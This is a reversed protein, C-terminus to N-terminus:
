SAGLCIVLVFHIMMPIEGRVFNFGKFFEFTEELDLRHLEWTQFPGSAPGRHIAPLVPWLADAIALAFHLRDQFKHQLFFRDDGQFWLTWM